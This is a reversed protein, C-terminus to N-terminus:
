GEEPFPNNEYAVPVEDPIGDDAAQPARDLLQFDETAHLTWDKRKNGNQDEWKNSINPGQALILRGKKVYDKLADARKGWLIVHMFDVEDKKAGPRDVAVDFKLFSVGNGTQDYVTDTSVRGTICLSNHAM